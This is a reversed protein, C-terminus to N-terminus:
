AGLTGVDNRITRSRQGSESVVRVDVRRVRPFLSTTGFRLQSGAIRKQCRVEYTARIESHEVDRTTSDGATVTQPVITCGLDAAFSVLRHGNARLKALASDRKARESANRPQHEFGYIDDAPALMEVIATTGEIAIDIRATGHEHRDQALADRGAFALALVLWPV